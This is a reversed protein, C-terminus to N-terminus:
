NEIIKIRPALLQTAAALVLVWVMVTLFPAKAQAWKNGNAPPIYTFVPATKWFATNGTDRGGYQSNDRLRENLRKIFTKRYAETQRYFSICNYLDTGALAMSAYKAPLTPSMWGSRHHMDIQLRFINYLSDYHKDYIPNNIEEDAQLVVGLWNLPLQQVSDVGYKQLWQNQLEKEKNGAAGHSNLGNLAIDEGIRAMFTEADVPPYRANSWQVFCRPALWVVLLWIGLASVLAARATKAKMSLIIGALIFVGAYLQYLLLLSFSSANFFNQQSLISTLIGGCLWIAGIMSGSICWLTLAKGWILKRVPVGQILLMKLTGNSRDTVVMSAALWIMLLPLVVLLMGAPTLEGWRALLPNDEIAKLQLENRKHAEIYLSVGYHKEIGSDWIALASLPKFLYIGFHAASHSNKEGQTEWHHRANDSVEKQLRSYWQYYNWSIVLSIILLLGTIGLLLIAVKNRKIQLWEYQIIAKM